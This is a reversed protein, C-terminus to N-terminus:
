VKRSLEVEGTLTVKKQYAITGATQSETTPEVYKTIKSATVYRVIPTDYEDVTFAPADETTDTTDTTETQDTTEQADDTTDAYVFSTGASSFLISIAMSVACLATLKSKKM